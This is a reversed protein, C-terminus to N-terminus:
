EDAADSTYLLCSRSLMANMYDESSFAKLGSTTTRVNDGNDSAYDSRRISGPELNSLREEFSQPRLDDYMSAGSIKEWSKALSTAEKEMGIQQKSIKMRNETSNKKLEAYPDEDIEVSAGIFRKEIFSPINETENVKRFKSM